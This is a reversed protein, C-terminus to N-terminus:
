TKNVNGDKIYDQYEVLKGAVEKWIRINFPYEGSLTSHQEIIYETHNSLCSEAEEKTEYIKRCITCMWGTVYEIDM